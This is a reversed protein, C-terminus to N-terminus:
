APVLERDEEGTEEQITVREQRVQLNFLLADLFLAAEDLSIIGECYLNVVGLWADQFVDDSRDVRRHQFMTRWLNYVALRAERQEQNHNLIKPLDDVEASM